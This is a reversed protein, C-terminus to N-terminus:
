LSSFVSFGDTNGLLARLQDNRANEIEPWHGSAKAQRIKDPVNWSAAYNARRWSTRPYAPIVDLWLEVDDITVPIEGFLDLLSPTPMGGM